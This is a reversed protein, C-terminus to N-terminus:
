ARNKSGVFKSTVFKCRVIRDNYGSGLLHDVVQLWLYNTGYGDVEAQCFKLERVSRKNRKFYTGKKTVILNERKTTM